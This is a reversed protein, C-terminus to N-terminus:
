RRPGNSKEDELLEAGDSHSRDTVIPAAELERCRRRLLRRGGSRESCSCTGLRSAACIRFLDPLWARRTWAGVGQARYGASRPDVAAEVLFERSLTALALKQRGEGRPNTSPPRTSTSTRTARAPM